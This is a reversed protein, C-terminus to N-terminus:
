DDMRFPSSEADEHRIEDIPDKRNAGAFLRNPCNIMWADVDSTNTYGHVVRPPVIVVCPNSEGVQIVIRNGFTPSDPRNDWLRVKLNGPGIFGFMDSQEAHEHPGRTAGPRTVSVYGMAPMSASDMEDSRFLETLWGRTDTHRVVARIIVGDIKGDVWTM